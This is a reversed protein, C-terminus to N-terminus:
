QDLVFLMLCKGFFTLQGLNRTQILILKIPILIAIKDRVVEYLPSFDIPIGLLSLMQLRCQCVMTTVPLYHHLNKSLFM